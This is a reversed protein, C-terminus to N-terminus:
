LGDMVKLMAEKHRPHTTHLSVFSQGVRILGFLRGNEHYLDVLKLMLEAAEITTNRSKSLQTELQTAQKTIPDVDSDQVVAFLSASVFLLLASFGVIRM